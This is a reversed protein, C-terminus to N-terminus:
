KNIEKRLKYYDDDVGFLLKGEEYLKKIQEYREKNNSTGGAGCEPCKISPMDKDLSGLPCIDGWAWFGYGFCAKCKSM